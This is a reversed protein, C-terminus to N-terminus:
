PEGLDGNRGALAAGAEDAALAAFWEWDPERADSLPGRQSMEPPQAAPLAALRARLLIAMPGDGPGDDGEADFLADEGLTEAIRRDHDARAALAREVQWRFRAPPLPEFVAPRGIAASDEEIERLLHDLEDADWLLIADARGGEAVKLSVVISHARGARAFSAALVLPAGSAHRLQCCGSVAIPEHLEAAWSPPPQGSDILRRVARAAAKATRAPAVASIALLMTVSGRSEFEPILEEVRARGSEEDGGPMTALVAAGGVEAVLPDDSGAWEEAAVAMGDLM